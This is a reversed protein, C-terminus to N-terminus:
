GFDPKPLSSPFASVRKNELYLKLIKGLAGIGTRGSIPTNAQGLIPASTALRRTSVPPPVHFKDAQPEAVESRETLIECFQIQVIQCKQEARVAGALRRHQLSQCSQETEIRGMALDSLGVKVDRMLLRVFRRRLALEPNLCVELKGLQHALAFFFRRRNRSVERMHLKHSDIPWRLDPEPEIGREIPILIDFLIEGVDHLDIGFTVRQLLAPDCLVIPIGNLHVVQWSPAVRRVM